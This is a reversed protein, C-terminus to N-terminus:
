ISTDPCPELLGDWDLTTVVEKLQGIDEQVDICYQLSLLEIPRGIKKRSELASFLPRPGAIIEEAPGVNSPYYRTWSLADMGLLKLNPFRCDESSQCQLLTALWSVHWCQVTLWRLNPMNDLYPIINNLFSIFRRPEGDPAPLIMYQVDPLRMHLQIAPLLFKSNASSLQIFLHPQPMSSEALTSIHPGYPWAEIVFTLWYEYIHFTHDFAPQSASPASGYYKRGIIALLDAQIQWQEHPPIHNAHISIYSPFELHSLIHVLNVSSGSIELRRLHSLSVPRGNYTADFSDGMRLLLDNLLPLSFLCELVQSMFGPAIPIELRTLSPPLLHRFENFYLNTSLDQLAPVDNLFSLVHEARPPDTQIMYTNISLRRLLPAPRPLIHMFETYQNDTLHVILTRIRHLAELTAHLCSKDSDSHHVDLPMDGSRELVASICELRDRAFILTWLQPCALALDRWYRCVHTVVFWFAPRSDWEHFSKLLLDIHCLFIEILLEPPLSSIRPSSDSPM